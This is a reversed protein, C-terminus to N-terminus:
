EAAKLLLNMQRTLLQVREELDAVRKQLAEIETAADQPGVPPRGGVQPPSAAMRTSREEDLEKLKAILDDTPVDAIVFYKLTDSALDADSATVVVPVAVPVGDFKRGLLKTAQTLIQPLELRLANVASGGRAKGDFQKALSEAASAIVAANDLTVQGTKADIQMGDGPAPMSYVIPAKGGRTEHSLATTKEPSLTLASQQPLWRLPQVQEPEGSASQLPWVYLADQIVVYANDNTVKLLAGGTESNSGSNTVTRTRLLVQRKDVSGTAAVAYEFEVESSRAFDNRTTRQTQLYLTVALDRNPVDARILPRIPQNPGLRLDVQNQPRSNIALISPLPANRDVMPVPLGSLLLQPQFDYDLLVYETLIGYDNLPEPTQRSKPYTGQREFTTLDYAEVTTATNIVLLNEGAKIQQIPGGAVLSKARELDALKLLECRPSQSTGATVALNQGAFAVTRIRDVIQRSAQVKGTKLNILALEQPEAPTASAFGTLRGDPTGSWIAALDEAPSLILGAPAFPLSVSPYKVEVEFRVTRQIDKWSLTTVIPTPGVQENTPTWTLTEGSAQMGEPKDDITLKVDPSLPRLTLTAPRNILVADAGELKALLFPEQPIQFDALPIFHLLNSEALVVRDRPDDAFLRRRKAVRKFDAQSSVGRPLNTNEDAVRHAVSVTEGVSTFTNYSAALLKVTGSKSERNFSSSFRDVQEEGVIIPRSRFFASPPFNLEAEKKELTASYIGKGTATFRDFPDPVYRSTSNHDYFARAFEPKDATLANTRRMSEFGSPSWPGRRYAIDGKASIACDMSDNFALGRDQNTRLSVVGTSSGHGSGYCYYVFPDEPNISGTVLSVGSQSLSVKAILDFPAQANILYMHSDQSCVVAFVSKEGFQKFFVSCPTAGVRVKAAPETKGKALQSGAFFEASNNEASVAAIDGTAPNIAFDAYKEPLTLSTVEALASRSALWALGCALFFVLSSTRLLRIM